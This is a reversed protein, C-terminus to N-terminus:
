ITESNHLYDWLSAVRVGFVVRAGHDTNAVTLSGGCERALFFPSIYPLEIGADAKMESVNTASYRYSFLLFRWTLEIGADAQMESMQGTM